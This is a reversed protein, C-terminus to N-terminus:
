VQVNRTIRHKINIIRSRVVKHVRKVVNINGSGPLGSHSIETLFVGKSVRLRASIILMLSVNLRGQAKTPRSSVSLHLVTKLM